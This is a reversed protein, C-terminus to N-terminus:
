ICRVLVPHSTHVHLVKEKYRTPVQLTFFYRAMGHDGFAGDSIVTVECEAM